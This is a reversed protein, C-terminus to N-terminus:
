VDGTFGLHNKADLFRAVSLLSLRSFIVPKAEEGHNEQAHDKARM